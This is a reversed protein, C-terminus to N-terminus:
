LLNKIIVSILGLFGGFLGYLELRKFYKKAFSNFLEEIERPHMENIESEIINEFDINDTIKDWNNAIENLLLEILDFIITQKFDGDILDNAKEIFSQINNKLIVRLNNNEKILNVLKLYIEEIEKSTYIEKVELQNDLNNIVIDLYNNDEKLKNGVEKLKSHIDNKDIEKTFEDLSTNFIKEVFINKIDEDISISKLEEILDDKINNVKEEDIYNYIDINNFVLDKVIIIKDKYENLDIEVEFEKLSIENDKVINLITKELRDENDRLIKDVKEDIFTNLIKLVSDEIDIFAASLEYLMGMKNKIIKLINEKLHEKNSELLNKIKLEIIKRIPSINNLLVDEFDFNSIKFEEVEKSKLIEKLNLNVNDFSNNKIEFDFDRNLNLDKLKFDKLEINNIDALKSNITFKLNEKNINNSMNLSINNLMGVQKKSDSVLNINNIINNSFKEALIDRKSIFYNNLYFYNDRKLYDDLYDKYYEINNNYVTKIKDEKILQKSVFSSMSKAFRPKQKSIVGQPFISFGGLKVTEYPKFIMKLAIFNTFWGVLSYVFFSSLMNMNNIDYKSLLLGVIGGFIAGITNIPKLEKGMFDELMTQLKEDELDKMNSKVVKKVKGELINPLEEKLTGLFANSIEQMNQDNLNDFINNITKESITNIKGEIETKIFNRIESKINEKANLLDQIKVKSNLFKNVAFNCFSEKNSKLTNVFIYKEFSNVKDEGMEIFSKNLILDLKLHIFEKIKIDVFDININKNIFDVIINEFINDIDLFKNLKLELFSGLQIQKIINKKIFEFLKDELNINFECEILKILDKLKKSQIFDVFAKTEDYEDIKFNLFENIMNSINFDENEILFEKAMSKIKENIGFLDFDSSFNSEISESLGNLIDEEIDLIFENSNTKVSEKLDLARREFKKENMSIYENIYKESNSIEKYFGKFSNKLQDENELILKILDEKLINIEDTKLFDKIYLKNIDDLFKNNNKFQKEFEVLLYEKLLDIEKQGLNLNAGKISDKIGIVINKGLFENLNKYGQKKFLNFLSKFEDEHELNLVLNDHIKSAFKKIINEDLINELDISSIVDEYINNSLNENISMSYDVLNNLTEKAGKLDKIKTNDELKKTKISNFIDISIDKFEDKNLERELTKHNILDKEILSSLNEIFEDRTKLVVGGVGIYEKFLMKIAIKNTIYGTMGGLVLDIIYKM